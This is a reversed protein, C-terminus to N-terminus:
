QGKRSKQKFRTRGNHDETFPNSNTLLATQPHQHDLTHFRHTTPTAENPIPHISPSQTETPLSSNQSNSTVIIPNLTVIQADIDM